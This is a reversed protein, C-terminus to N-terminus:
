SKPWKQKNLREPHPVSHSRTMQMTFRGTEMYERIIQEGTAEGAFDLSAEKLERIVEDIVQRGMWTARGDPYDKTAISYKVAALKLANLKEEYTTM